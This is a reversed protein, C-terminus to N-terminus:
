QLPRAQPSDYFVLTSEEEEEEKAVPQTHVAKIITSGRRGVKWGGDKIRAVLLRGCDAPLLFHEGGPRRRRPRIEKKEVRWECTGM